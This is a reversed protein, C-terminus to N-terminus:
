GDTKEDAMFKEFNERSVPIKAGCRPCTVVAMGVDAFVHDRDEEPLTAFMPFFREESCGCDFKYERKELLSLTEATDIDRVKDSDLSEFWDLDCEPQASIMVFDEDGLDYLKAPRQESQLYYDEVAHFIDLGKIEIVSNRLSGGDDTTQSHLTQRESKKVDETFVRGTIGGTRNSGAAFVNILPAQFNLTWATTEGWPRSALHLTLASFTNKLLTDHQEEYKIGHQMLHLYYDTYMLPFQGRVLLANRERVFYCRVEIPQNEAQKDPENLM